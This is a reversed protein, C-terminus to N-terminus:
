CCTAPRSPTVWQGDPNATVGALHVRRTDLEIFFLVYLRRLWVTDVTFFDCAVIGAAQQRLVGALQHDRATASPRAWPPAADHPDCHCLGARWAPADRGQHAPLGLPSARHRPPHDPAPRRPRAAAARPAPLDMNRRHPTPALAITDPTHCPLLSCRAGPFARSIAALLACLQICRCMTLYALRPLVCSLRRLPRSPLRM